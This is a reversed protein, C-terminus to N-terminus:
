GGILYNAEQMSARPKRQACSLLGSSIMFRVVLYVRNAVAIESVMLSVALGM